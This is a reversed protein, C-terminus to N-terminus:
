SVPVPTTRDKNVSLTTMKVLDGDISQIPMVVMMRMQATGLANHFEDFSKTNKNYFRQTGKTVAPNYDMGETSVAVEGQPTQFIDAESQKYKVMVTDGSPLKLEVTEGNDNNKNVPVLGVPTFVYTDGAVGEMMVATNMIATFRGISKLM